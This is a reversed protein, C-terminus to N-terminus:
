LRTVSTFSFDSTFILGGGNALVRRKPRLCISSAPAMGRSCLYTVVRYISYISISHASLHKCEFYEKAFLIQLCTIDKGIDVDHLRKM